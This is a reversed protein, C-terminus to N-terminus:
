LIMGIGLHVGFWAGDIGVERVKDVLAGVPSIVRGGEIALQATMRPALRLEANGLVFGGLWPAWFRDTTVMEDSTGGLRVMGGRVGGALSLEVPGMPRSLSVAASADIVDLTVQGHPVDSEGRHLGIDVLWGIPAGPGSVRVGGGGLLGSNSDFIVGGGFAAVHVGRRGREPQSVADISVPVPPVLSPAQAVAPPPAHAAVPPPKTSVLEVAALAILRARAGPATDALAVTRAISEGAATVRVSATSADCAVAIRTGGAAENPVPAPPVAVQQALEIEVIRVIEAPADCGQIDLVISLPWGV